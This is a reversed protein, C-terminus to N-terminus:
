QKEDNQVDSDFVFYNTSQGQDDWPWYLYIQSTKLQLITKCSRM